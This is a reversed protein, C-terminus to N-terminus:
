HSEHHFVGSTPKERPPTTVQSSTWWRPSTVTLPQWSFGALVSRPGDNRAARPAASDALTAADNAGTPHEGPQLIETM